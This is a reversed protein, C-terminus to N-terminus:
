AGETAPLSVKEYVERLVLACGISPLPILAEAESFAQCIWHNEHRSFVEILMREQSVLVYTQLSPLKQYHQFKDGRDYKETGASLVEIILVPNLLTDLGTDEFRPQGCAVVLDPYTYLGTENVKVRM